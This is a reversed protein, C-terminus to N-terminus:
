NNSKTSAREDKDRKAITSEGQNFKEWRVDRREATAPTMTRPGLLDAPNAVQMALNRQNACGFNAYPLNRYDAGLNEPWAGCDPAEAVYQTYSLRIAPDRDSRGGYANVSIRSEDIGFDRAIHRIEEVAHMAAIENAGGSPVAISLRSNGADAVRSRGIFESIGARQKPSLGDSGHAVRVSHTTPQESVIIPHRQQPSIMTWGAVHGGPDINDSCGPLAMCAILSVVGLAAARASCRAVKTLDISTTM